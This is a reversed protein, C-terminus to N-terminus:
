GNRAGSVRWHAAARVLFCLLCAVGGLVVMARLPWDPLTFVGQEGMYYGREISEILLPTTGIIIAIMVVAGLLDLAVCALRAGLAHSAQLGALFTDSRTLKGLRVTDALQCFVIVAMSVAVLENVGDIPHNFLSRGFSDACILLVLLLVWLSGIANLVIVSTNLLRVLPGPRDRNDASL